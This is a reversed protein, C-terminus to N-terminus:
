KERIEEFDADEIEYATLESYDTKTVSSDGGKDVHPKSGFLSGIGQFIPYLMRLVIFFLFIKLITGVV